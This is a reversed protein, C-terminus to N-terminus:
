KVTTSIRYCITGGKLKEVSSLRCAGNSDTIVSVILYAAGGEEFSCKDLKPLRVEIVNSGKAVAEYDTSDGFLDLLWKASFKKSKAM